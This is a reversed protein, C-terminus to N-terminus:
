TKSQMEWSMKFIEGSKLSIAKITISKFAPRVNSKFSRLFTPRGAKSKLKTGAVKSIKVITISAGKNNPIGIKSAAISPVTIAATEGATITGLIIKRICCM